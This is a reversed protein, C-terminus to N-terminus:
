HEHRHHLDPWHPHAHALPQHRHWHSHVSGPALGPHAHAHHGDDHRHAHVHELAEHAHLHEHRARLVLAVSAALAAAAGAQVPSPREGLAVWALGAGLFPAAAFIAHARTAGLQQAAAIYLVISAGYSLAGLALAAAVPGADLAGLSAGGLALGLALNTTGAVAGKWFTSVAPTVGDIRATLHNDVGWCACAGAVWLGAALGPRGGGASVAVGAVVVGAAGLWGTRGLPERFCWAGLLATFAMELNLLLAVSAAPALRLGALMLVPGAIGGLAVAGALRALNARDLRVGARPTSRSRLSRALAPLMALAAGLYLLGALELLPLDVLLVKSAPAAAGFLLAAILAQLVGRV